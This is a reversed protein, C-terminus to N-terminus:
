SNAKEREKEKREESRWVFPAAVTVIFSWGSIIFSTIAMILDDRLAKRWYNAEDKRKEQKSSYADAMEVSGFRKNNRNAEDAMEEYEQIYETYSEKEEKYESNFYLGVFLVAVAVVLPPIVSKPIGAFICLTGIVVLVLGSVIYLFAM